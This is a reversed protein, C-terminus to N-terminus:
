RTLGIVINPQGPCTRTTVLSTNDLTWTCPQPGEDGFTATWLNGQRHLDFAASGTNMNICDPGCSTLTFTTTSGNEKIGGGDLMTATYPGDVPDASAPSALGIAAGALVAVAAVGRTITM